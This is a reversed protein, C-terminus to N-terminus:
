FRGLLQISAGHRTPSLAWRTTVPADARAERNSKIASGVIAWTIGTLLLAGGTGTIALPGATSDDDADFFAYLGYGTLGAGVPILLYAPWVLPGRLRALEAPPIVEETEGAAVRVTRSWTAYGQRRLQVLHAGPSLEREYSGPGTGITRGNVVVEAEDLSSVIRVSGIGLREESRVTREEDLSLVLELPSGDENPVITMEIRRASAGHQVIFTGSGAMLSGEYNGTGLSQRDGGAAIWTLSASSPIVRAQVQVGARDLDYTLVPISEGPSLAAVQVIDHVTEYNDREIILLHRGTFLRTELPTVGIPGLEREDLYVRAGSPSSRIQVPVDRMTVGLEQRRAGRPPPQSGRARSVAEFVIDGAEFISNIMAQSRLMELEDSIEQEAEDSSAAYREYNDIARGYEGMNAYAQGIFLLLRPNPLLEYAREFHGIAETYRLAMYAERGLAFADRAADRDAESVEDAEEDAYAASPLFGITSLAFAVLVTGLLATLNSRSM